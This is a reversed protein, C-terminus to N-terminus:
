AREQDGGAHGNGGGGVAAGVDALIPAPRAGAVFGRQEAAFIVEAVAQGQEGVGAAAFRRHRAHGVLGRFDDVGGAVGIRRRAIVAEFHLAVRHVGAGAHTEVGPRDAVARHHLGAAIAILQRPPNNGAGRHQRIDVVGDVAGLRRNGLRIRRFDGGGLQGAHGDGVGQGHEVLAHLDGDAQALLADLGVVVVAGARHGRGVVVALGRRQEAHHELRPLVHREVVVVEFAQALAVHRRGVRCIGPLDKRRIHGPLM